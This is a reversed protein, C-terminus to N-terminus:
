GRYWGRITLVYRAYIDEDLLDSWSFKNFEIVQVQGLPDFEEIIVDVAYCCSPDNTGILNPDNNKFVGKLYQREYYGLGYLKIWMELVGADWEIQVSDLVILFSSTRITLKAM